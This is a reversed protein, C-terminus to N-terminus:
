KALSRTLLSFFFFLLEKHSFYISTLCLSENQEVFLFSDAAVVFVLRYISYVSLTPAKQLDYLICVM